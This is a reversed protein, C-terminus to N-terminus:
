KKFATVEFQYWIPMLGQRLKHASQVLDIGRQPSTKGHLECFEIVAARDDANGYRLLLVLLKLTAPFWNDDTKIPAAALLYKRSEKNNEDARFALMALIIDTKYIRNPYDPDARFEDEVALADNAYRRAIDWDKRAGADDHNYDTLLAGAFYAREALTPLAQAREAAPLAAAKQYQEGSVQNGVSTVIHRYSEADSQAKNIQAVDQPYVSGPDLKAAREFYEHGLARAASNPLGGRTLGFGVASLLAADSSGDLRKRLDEAYPNQSSPGSLASIYIMTLLRRRRNEDISSHTAIEEARKPDARRFYLAAAFQLDPTVNPRRLIADWLKAGKQYAVPDTLPEILSACSNEPHHEICWLKITWFGSTAKEDGLVQRGRSQYFAMLKDRSAANEPNERVNAELAEADAATMVNIEQSRQNRAISDSIQQAYAPDAQLAQFPKQNCAAAFFIAALSTLALAAKQAANARALPLGRALRDIRPALLGAGDVGAGYLALTRSHRHATQAIEMLVEAYTRVGGLAAVGADDCAEEADLALRRELWWALPHFWFLATNLHALFGTLTDRRRMHAAEHALVAVLKDERWERWGAPLLIKPTWLGVTVPTSISACEYVAMGRVAIAKARGSLRRALLWGIALRLLLIFAVGAYLVFAAAPATLRNAGSSAPPQSAAPAVPWSPLPASPSTATVPIPAPPAVALPASHSPEGIASGFPPLDLSPLMRPLIPMSLMAFLVGVSAKHRLSTSRVRFLWVAAYVAIAVASIRISAELLISLLSIM